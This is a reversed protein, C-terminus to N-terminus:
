DNGMVLWIYSCFYCGMLDITLLTYVVPFHIVSLFCDINHLFCCVKEPFMTISKTLAALPPKKPPKEADASSLASGAVKNAQSVSDSSSKKKSLLEENLNVSIEGTTVEVNKVVLGVERYGFIFILFQKGVFFCHLLWM